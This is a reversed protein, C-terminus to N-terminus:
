PIPRGATPNPGQAVQDILSARYELISAATVPGHHLNALYLLGGDGAFTQAIEDDSPERRTRGLALSRAILWATHFPHASAADSPTLSPPAAPPSSAVEPL